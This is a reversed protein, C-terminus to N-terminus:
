AIGTENNVKITVNVTENFDGDNVVRSRITYSEDITLNEGPSVEGGNYIKIGNGEPYYDTSVNIDHIEESVTFTGNTVDRPIEGTGNNLSVVTLNLPSEGPSIGELTVDAFKINGSLATFRFVAFRVYGISNNIEKTTNMPWDDGEVIDLAHVISSDYELLIHAGKVGTVDNIMIPVTTSESVGVEASQITVTTAPSATLTAILTAVALFLLAVSLFTGTKRANM